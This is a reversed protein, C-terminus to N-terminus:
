QVAAVFEKVKHLLIILKEVPGLLAEVALGVSALLAAIKKNNLIFDFM